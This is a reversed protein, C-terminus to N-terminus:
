HNMLGAGKGSTIGIVELLDYIRQIYQLLPQFSSIAIGGTLPYRILLNM